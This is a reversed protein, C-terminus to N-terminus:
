ILPLIRVMTIYEPEKKSQIAAIHRNGRRRGALTAEIQDLISKSVLAASPSSKKMEEIRPNVSNINPGALKFHKPQFKTKKTRVIRKTYSRILPTLPLLFKSFM